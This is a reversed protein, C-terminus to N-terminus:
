ENMLCQQPLAIEKAPANGSMGGFVDETDLLYSEDDVTEFKTTGRTDCIEWGRQKIADFFNKGFDYKKASDPHWEVTGGTLVSECFIGYKLMKTLVQYEMGEIDIKMFTSQPKYFATLRLMLETVDVSVIDYEVWGEEKERQGVNAGWDKHTSDPNSYTKLLKGSSTDAAMIFFKTSWNQTPENYCAEITSLRERHAENAEIGIVCGYKQRSSILGIVNNFTTIMPARPYKSPEFFKRVQVGVNSGIDFYLSSCTPHAATAALVALTLLTLTTHPTNPEGIFDEVIDTVIQSEPLEPVTMKGSSKSAYGERKTDGFRSRLSSPKDNM